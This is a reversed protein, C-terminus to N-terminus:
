KFKLYQRLKNCFEPTFDPQELRDGLYQKLKDRGNIIYVGTKGEIEAANYKIFVIAKSIKIGSIDRNELYKRLFYAHRQIQERPDKDPSIVYTRGDKIQFYEDENFCVKDSYNKVELVILGKPGIVVFDIDFKHGPIKVNPFISYREKPLFEDLWGAVINEGDIGRKAADAEDLFKDEIKIIKKFTAVSLSFFLYGVLMNILLEVTKFTFSTRSIGYYYDIFVIFVLVIFFGLLKLWAVWYLKQSYTM